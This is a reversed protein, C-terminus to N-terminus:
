HNADSDGVDLLDKNQDVWIWFDHQWKALQVSEAHQVLFAALAWATGATFGTGFKAVTLIKQATGITMAEASQGYGPLTINDSIKIAPIGGFLLFVTAVALVAMRVHAGLASIASGLCSKLHEIICM